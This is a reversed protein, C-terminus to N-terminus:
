SAKRLSSRPKEKPKEQPFLGKKSKGAGSGSKRKPKAGATEDSRERGKALLALTEAHRRKWDPSGPGKTRFHLAACCRVLALFLM